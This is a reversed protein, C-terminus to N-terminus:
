KYSKKTFVTRANGTYPYQVSHANIESDQSSLVIPAKPQNSYIIITTTGAGAIIGV